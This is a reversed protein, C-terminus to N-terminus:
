SQPWYFSVCATLLSFYFIFFYLLSNSHLFTLLEGIYINVSYQYIWELLPLHSMYGQRHSHLRNRGRVFFCLSCCNLISRRFLGWSRAFDFIAISTRFRVKLFSFSRCTLFTAWLLDISKFQCISAPDTVERRVLLRLPENHLSTTSEPSLLASGLERLFTVPEFVGLRSAWCPCGVSYWPLAILLRRVSLKQDKYRRTLATILLGTKAELSWFRQM